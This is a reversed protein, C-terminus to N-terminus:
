KILVNQAGVIENLKNHSNELRAEIDAILTRVVEPVGRKNLPPVGAEKLLRRMHGPTLELFKATHVISFNLEEFIKLITYHKVDKLIQSM